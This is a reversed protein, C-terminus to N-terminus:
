QFYLLYTITRKVTQVIQNSISHTIRCYNFKYISLHNDCLFFFSRQYHRVKVKYLLEIFSPNPLIWIQLIQLRLLILSPFGVPLIWLRTCKGVSGNSSTVTPILNEAGTLSHLIPKLFRSNQYQM